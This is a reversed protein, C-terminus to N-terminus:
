GTNLLYQKAKDLLETQHKFMGIGRNCNECLIGRIKGTGHDHDVALSVRENEKGCIGCKRDQETFMKEYQELTIGYKKVLHRNRRIKLYKERTEGQLYSNTREQWCPKCEHQYGDKSRKNKWYETLPKETKCRNCIKM